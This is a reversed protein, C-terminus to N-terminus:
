SALWAALAQRGRATLRVVNCEDVSLYGELRASELLYEYLWRGANGEAGPCWWSSWQHWLWTCTEPGLWSAIRLLGAVSDSLKM